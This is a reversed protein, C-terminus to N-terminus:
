DLDEDYITELTKSAFEGDDDDDYIDGQNKGKSPDYITATKEWRDREFTNIRAMQLISADNFAQDQFQEHLDMKKDQLSANFNATIKRKSEAELNKASPNDGFFDSYKALTEEINKKQIRFQTRFLVMFSTFWVIDIFSELISIEIFTMLIYFDEQM